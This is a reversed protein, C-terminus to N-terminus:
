GEPADGGPESKPAAGKRSSLKGAEGRAADKLKAKILKRLLKRESDTLRDDADAEGDDGAAAEGQAAGTAKAKVEVAKQKVGEVLQQGEETGAIARVHQVLTKDGLPIEAAVYVAGAILCLGILWRILKM